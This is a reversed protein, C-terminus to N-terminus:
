QAERYRRQDAPNSEWGNAGYHTEEGQHVLIVTLIARRSHSYGIVRVSRNSRSAPDPDFWVADIDNVAEDAEATAVKHNDWMHQAGYTWDAGSM